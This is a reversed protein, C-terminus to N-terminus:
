AIQRVEIETRENEKDYWLYAHIEKIQKDDQYAVGNMSDSVLKVYNDLDGHNKNRLFVSVTLVLDGELPKDVEKQAIEKVYKEHKRTDAPTFVFGKHNFRPRGKPRPRGPIVLKIM